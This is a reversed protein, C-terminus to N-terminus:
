VKLFRHFLVQLEVTFFDIDSMIFLEYSFMLMTTITGKEEISDDMKYAALVYKM